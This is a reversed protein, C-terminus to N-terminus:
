QEGAVAGSFPRSLGCTYPITQLRKWLYSYRVWCPALPLVFIRELEILWRSLEVCVLRKSKRSFLVLPVIRTHFSLKALYYLVLFYFNTAAAILLMFHCLTVSGHTHFLPTHRPLIEM